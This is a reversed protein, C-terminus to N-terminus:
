FRLKKVVARWLEVCKLRIEYKEPQGVLELVGRDFHAAMVADTEAAPLCLAPYMVCWWNQGQGTGIEVRLAQYNGAPLTLDAYQREPFAAEGFSVQVSDTCGAARLTEEAAQRIEPLKERLAGCGESWTAGEPIWEGSRSVLADRVLLKQTQDATSDSNALIHLRIVSHEVEELMAETHLLNVAIVACLLVTFLRLAKKM